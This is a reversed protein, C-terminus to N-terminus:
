PTYTATTEIVSSIYHILLYHDCHISQFLYKEQIATQRKRHCQEATRGTEGQDDHHHATRFGDAALQATRVTVFHGSGGQKDEEPEEVDEHRRQLSVTVDLTYVCSTRDLRASNETYLLSAGGLRRRGVRAM